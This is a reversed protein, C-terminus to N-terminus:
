SESNKTFYFVMMGDIEINGNLAWLTLTNNKPIVLDQEFNISKTEDSSAVYYRFMILGESIGTIEGSSLFIGSAENASGLNLNVPTNSDGGIPIEGDNAQVEIIETLNTGALRLELGEVILDLESENKIYLFCIKGISESPQSSIPTEQFLMNFALGKEHNAHHEPSAAVSITKMRHDSNVGVTVGSGQGDEIHM